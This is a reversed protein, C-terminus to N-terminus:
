HISPHISPVGAFDLVGAMRGCVCLLCYLIAPQTFNDFYYMMSLVVPLTLFKHWNIAHAATSCGLLSLPPPLAKKESETHARVMATSPEAPHTQTQTHWTSQM